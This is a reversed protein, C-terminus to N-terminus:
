AACDLQRRRQEILKAEEGYLEAVIWAALDFDPREFSPQSLRLKVFGARGRINKEFRLIYFGVGGIGQVGYGKYAWGSIQLSPFLAAIKAHM